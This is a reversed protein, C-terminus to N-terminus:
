VQLQCCPAITNESDDSASAQMAQVYLDFAM